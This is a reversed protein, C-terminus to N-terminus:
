RASVPKIIDNQSEAHSVQNDSFALDALKENIDITM